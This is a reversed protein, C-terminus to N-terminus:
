INIYMRVLRTVADVSYRFGSEATEKVTIVHRCQRSREILMVSSLTVLSTGTNQNMAAAVEQRVSRQIDLTLDFQLKMMQRMEKLQAKLANMERSM